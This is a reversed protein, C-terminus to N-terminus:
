KSVVTSKFTIQHTSVFMEFFQGNLSEGAFSCKRQSSGLDRFDQAKVTFWRETRLWDGGNNIMHQNCISGLCM